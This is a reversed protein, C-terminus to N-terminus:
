CQLSQKLKALQKEKKESAKKYKEMNMEADTSKSTQTRLDLKAVVSVRDDWSVITHSGRTYMWKTQM